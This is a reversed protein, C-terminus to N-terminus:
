LAVNTYAFVALNLFTSFSEITAGTGVGDLTYGGLDGSSVSSAPDGVKPRRSLSLGVLAKAIKGTQQAWVNVGKVNWHKNAADAKFNTGENHLAVNASTGDANAIIVDNNRLANYYWSAGSITNCYNFLDTIKADTSAYQMMEGHYASTRPTGTFLVGGIKLYQAHYETVSSTTGDWGTKDYTYNVTPATSAATLTSVSTVFNSEDFIASVIKGDANVVVEAMDVDNTNAIQYNIGVGSDGAFAAFALDYYEEAATITAGTNVTGILFEKSDNRSAAPKDTLDMGILAKEIDAINEKYGIKYRTNKPWYTSNIDAKFLSGAGQVSGLVVATDFATGAADKVISINGTKAQNYYWQMNEQSASVYEFFDAINMEANSYIVIEGHKATDRVAGTLVIDGVKVFKAFKVDVKNGSWDSKSATITEVTQGGLQSDNVIQAISNDGSGLLFTENIKM